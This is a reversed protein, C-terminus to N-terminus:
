QKFSIEVRRNSQRIAESTGYFLPCNKGVGLVQMRKRSIGHGGLYEFVARARKFSLAQNYNDTGVDDTHGVISLRLDNNVLLFGALSDLAPLSSSTLTSRNFEFQVNKLVRFVNFERTGTFYPISLTDVNNEEFPAIVEVGDIYYYSSEALMEQQIPRSQIKYSRTEENSFFNGIIMYREGGSARYEMQSTQWLGTERTLASDEIVSLVPHLPIVQDHAKQIITDCLALGIRDISYKSYSSLRYQFRIKYLSDKMLPRLLKCQLYERYNNSGKMWLYIGAFGEGDYADSVGAWNYPVDAEGESCANFLDPTGTGAPMWNKAGFESARQTFYGPCSSYEEFGPNPVLNQTFAAASLFVPFLFLTSRM